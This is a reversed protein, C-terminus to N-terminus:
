DRRQQCLNCLETKIMYQIKICKDTITYLAIRNNETNKVTRIDALCLECIVQGGCYEIITRARGVEGGLCIIDSVVIYQKTDSINEEFHKKHVGAIPGLHDLFVSNIQFLEALQTAIFGGNITHFFIVINDNAKPDEYMIENEILKIGLKYIILRVFSLNSDVMHKFNIYKTIYVPVSVHLGEEWSETAAYIMEELKVQFLERQKSILTHYEYENKNNGIKGFILDGDQNLHSISQDENLVEFVQKNVNVFYVNRNKSCFQNKVYAILRVLSNPNAVATIRDFFLCLDKGEFPYEYLKTLTNTDISNCYMGKNKKADSLEASEIFSNNYTHLACEAHLDIYYMHEDSLLSYLM